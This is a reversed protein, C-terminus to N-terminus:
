KEPAVEAKVDAAARVKFRAEAETVPFPFRVVVGADGVLADGQNPETFKWVAATVPAPREPQESGAAAKVDAAM